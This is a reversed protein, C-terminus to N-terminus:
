LIVDSILGFISYKKLRKIYEYEPDNINNYLKGANVRIVLNQYARERTICGVSDKTSLLHAFFMTRQM